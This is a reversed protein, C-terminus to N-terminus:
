VQACIAYAGVRWTGIALPDLRSARTVVAEPSGSPAFSTEFLSAQGLSDMLDFGADLAVTGLPCRSQAFATDDSRVTGPGETVVSRNFVPFACIAWATISWPNPGGKGFAKVHVENTTPIIQDLVARGNHVSGGSGLVIKGAPCTATASMEPWMGLDSQRQVIEYGPPPDACTISTYLEDIPKGDNLFNGSVVFGWRAMGLSDHSLDPKLEDLPRKKVFGATTRFGGGLVVKGVPCYMSSAGSTSAGSEVRTVNRLPNDVAGATQVPVVLGASAAVVAAM